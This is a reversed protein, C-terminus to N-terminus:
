ADKNMHAVDRVDDEAEHSVILSEAEGRWIRLAAQVFRFLLLAAGFPLIFYPLFRPIKEYSEGENILPEIWRLWDPMPTDVM